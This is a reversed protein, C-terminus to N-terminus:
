KVLQLYESTIDRSVGYVVGSSNLILGSENNLQYRIIETKDKYDNVSIKDSYLDDELKTLIRNIDLVSVSSLKIYNKDVVFLHYASISIVIALIVLLGKM